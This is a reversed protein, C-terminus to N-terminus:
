KAFYTASRRPPARCPHSSTPILDARRQYQNQVNAWKANVNEEATPISNVGCASLPLAAALALVLHKRKM